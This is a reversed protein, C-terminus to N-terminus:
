KKFQLTIKVDTRSISTGTITGKAHTFSDTGGTVAGTLKGTKDSLAFRAYLLGGKQAFAVHCHSAGSGTDSCYLADHGITKHNAVDTDTLVFSTKSLLLPASSSRADFHQTVTSSSSAALAPAAVAAAIAIGGATVTAATGLTVLTNKRNM